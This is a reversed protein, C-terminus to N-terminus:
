TAPRTPPPPRDSDRRSRHPAEERTLFGWRLAEDQSYQKGLTLATVAKAAEYGLYFAHAADLNRPPGQDPGSRLLQQFLLFPDADHLHMGASLLHVEGHEAFLRYNHDRIGAALQQLEEPGQWIVRPDRLLVLEPALHKPPIGHRVAYHVLRRALDCERVSSRAWPIVQTTLISRIRVEQCFGLLLVNVAASDCDTLESLNGIGMLMEADPYQERIQLYRGLSAAFGCGIPELIPDIRLPVNRQALYDVTADLEALSHPDDPIVVVECGWDVAAIRNSSNVSLVLEAGAAVADAIDDIMLSDISVRHGQDRLARVCDAIGTWREGPQCGIDIIDAGDDRLQAAQRLIEEFALRPANNIEALIAIDWQGYDRRDATRGFYEPLAHLDRPGREVLAGQSVDTVIQLDGDCYGPLVVRTTGPPVSLRPAVWRTTMLAAVTIPLVDLSYIIGLQPALLELQRRLAQAALRGTVFHIREGPQPTINATSASM